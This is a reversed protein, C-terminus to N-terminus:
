GYDQDRLHWRAMEYAVDVWDGNVKMSGMQRLWEGPDQGKRVMEHCQMAVELVTQIQSQRVAEHEPYLHNEYKKAQASNLKGLVFKEALYKNTKGM